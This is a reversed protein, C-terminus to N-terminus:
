FEPTEDEESSITLMKLFLHDIDSIVIIKKYDFEALNHSFLKVDLYIRKTIITIKNITEPM